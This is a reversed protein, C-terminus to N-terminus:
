KESVTLNCHENQYVSEESDYISRIVKVKAVAPLVDDQLSSNKYTKIWRVKSGTTPQTITSPLKCHRPIRSYSQTM